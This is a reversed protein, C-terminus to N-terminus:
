RPLSGPPLCSVFPSHRRKRGNAYGCFESDAYPMPAIAGLVRQRRAIETWATELWERAFDQSRYIEEETLIDILDSQTIRDDAFAISGEIWEILADLSGNHENVSPRFGERPLRHM